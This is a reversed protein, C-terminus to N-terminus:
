ATEVWATSGDSNRIEAWNRAGTGVIDGQFDPSRGNDTTSTQGTLVAGAPLPHLLKPGAARSAQVGKYLAYAGVGAVVLWLLKKSM